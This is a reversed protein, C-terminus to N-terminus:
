GVVDVCGRSGDVVATKGAPIRDMARPVGLVAPVGCERCIVAAHSLLGGTETVVGAVRHLVPVWAPTTFPCVLVDGPQAELAEELSRAVRVPGRGIGRSAALGVLEGTPVDATLSFRAGIENPAKFNRFSEYVERRPEVRSRDDEFIERFTMFFVDDGIGRRGAIEKVRRRILAYARSSCDRMEERLWVFRRLRDLKRLFSSRKRRPLARLTEERVREFLPAPEPGPRDAFTRLLDRLFEHDEDWRPARLDLERRSHHRFKAALPAVDTEGRAVMGRMEELPALHRLPPLGSVLAVADADPFSSRFDMKALSVAFITRFYNGEIRLYDREILERFDADTSANEHRREFQEIGGDLFERDFAEQQKMFRSAALLTPIARLMSLLGFPTVVGRGSERAEVALDDDFDREVYGPLRVLCQKVAGLNWYPRGFFMRGAPFDERLLKLERLTGKLADNWVFEYLSWMLPTCVGSSVGGDRFDANTWEGLGPAFGIRTIPRAQLVWIEGDEVAFEIDQPAGFHRQIRRALSEIAARHKRLLPHDAPLPPQEGSLLGEALGEVAEIVVAEEGTAPNVTFAVGALEPRVMRQLLFGMRLGSPDIGQARCYALVGPERASAICRHVADEVEALTRLSLFSRFQGAFSAVAGDEAEASSRVALPLGLREVAAPVDKPSSV